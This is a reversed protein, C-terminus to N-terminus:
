GEFAQDYWSVSWCNTLRREILTTQPSYCEFIHTTKSLNPVLAEHGGTEFRNLEQFADSLNSEFRQTVAGIQFSDCEFLVGFEVRDSLVDEASEM